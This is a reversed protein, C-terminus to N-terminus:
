ISWINVSFNKQFGYDEDFYDAVNGIEERIHHYSPICQSRWADTILNAGSPDAIQNSVSITKISGDIM